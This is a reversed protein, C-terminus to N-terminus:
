IGSTGSLVTWNINEPHEEPKVAIVPVKALHIVQQSYPGLFFGSLEADQDTMIVILDAHIKNSYNVTATARNKVNTLIETSCTVKRENAVDRIQKM